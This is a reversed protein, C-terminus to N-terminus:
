KYRSYLLKILPQYVDAINVLARTAAAGLEADSFASLKYIIEDLLSHVLKEDLTDLVSRCFDIYSFFSTHEIQLYDPYVLDRLVTAISGWNETRESLKCM